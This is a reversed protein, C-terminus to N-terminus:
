NGCSSFTILDVLAELEGALPKINVTDLDFAMNEILTCKLPTTYRTCRNDCSLRILCRRAHKSSPHTVASRDQGQLYGVHGAMPPPESSVKLGNTGLNLTLSPKNARVESEM